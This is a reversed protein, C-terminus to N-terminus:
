GFIEQSESKLILEVMWNNHNDKFRRLHSDKLKTVCQLFISLTNLGCFGGKYKQVIFHQASM